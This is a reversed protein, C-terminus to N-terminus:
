TRTSRTSACTNRVSIARGSPQRPAAPASTSRCSFTTTSSIPPPKLRRRTTRGGTKSCCTTGITVAARSLEFAVGARGAVAILRGWNPDGGHVATKVLPSNAIAKAARRAEDPSPRARSPSRSSSPRARAAACSAWPWDCASRGCRTRSSTTARSTSRERRQRRQRAGDRLRQHLVRRRRHHRQVHRRRRRAARPRAAAGAGGCRDHRIGLMTAMMPEIMGPARPWAASSSNAAASRCM